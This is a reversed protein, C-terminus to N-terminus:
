VGNPDTADMYLSDDKFFLQSQFQTEKAGKGYNVLVDLMAKYPYNLGSSSVLRNQFFIDVQQWITQLPLNVLAVKEKVDIQSGDKKEIHIKVGLRTRALDIFEFGSNNILFEVPARGSIITSPLITQWQYNQVEGDLQRSEFNVLTNM